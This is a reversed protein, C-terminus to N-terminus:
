ECCAQSPAIDRIWDSPGNDRREFNCRLAVTTYKQIIRANRESQDTRIWGNSEGAKIEIQGLGLKGGIEAWGEVLTDAWQFGGHRGRWATRDNYRDDPGQIQEVRINGEDTVGGAVFGAVRGHFVLAAGAMADLCLCHGTPVGPISYSYEAAILSEIEGFEEGIIPLIQYEKINEHPMEEDVGAIYPVALDALSLEGVLTAFRKYFDQELPM